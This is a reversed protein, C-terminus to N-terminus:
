QWALILLWCCSSASVLTTRAAQYEGKLLRNTTHLLLRWM